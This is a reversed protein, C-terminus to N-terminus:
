LLIFHVLIGRSLGLAYVECDQLHLNVDRSVRLEGASPAETKFSMGSVAVPESPRCHQDHCYPKQIFLAFPLGLTACQVSHTNAKGANAVTSKINISDDLKRGRQIPFWFLSDVLSELNQWSFIHSILYICCFYMNYEM